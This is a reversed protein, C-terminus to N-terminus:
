KPQSARMHTTRKRGTGAQTYRHDDFFIGEVEQAGSTIMIVGTGPVGIDAKPNRGKIHSFIWHLDGKHLISVHIRIAYEM